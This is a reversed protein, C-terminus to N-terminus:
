PYPGGTGVSEVNAGSQNIQVFNDTDNQEVALDLAAVQDTTLEDSTVKLKGANGTPNNTSTCSVYYIITTDTVTKTVLGIYNGNQATKEDSSHNKRWKIEGFATAPLLVVAGIVSLLIGSRKV